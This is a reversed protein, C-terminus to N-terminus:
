FILQKKILFLILLIQKLNQDMSSKVYNKKKNFYTVKGGKSKSVWEISDKHYNEGNM